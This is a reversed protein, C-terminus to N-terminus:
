GQETNTYRGPSATLGEPHPGSSTKWWFVGTPGAAQSWTHGDADSFRAMIAMGQPLCPVTPVEVLQEVLQPVRVVARQPIYDQSNIKPVDIVQEPVSIELIKLVDVPQDVVQPVAVVLIQVMPAFDALQEVTHREGREQLRPPETLSGPRM